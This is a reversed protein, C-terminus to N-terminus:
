EIRAICQATWPWPVFSFRFGFFFGNQRWCWFSKHHIHCSQKTCQDCRFLAMLNPKSRVWVRVIHFVANYVIKMFQKLKLEAWLNRQHLAVCSMATHVICPVMAYPFQKQRHENHSYRHIACRFSSFIHLYWIAVPISVDDLVYRFMTLPKQTRDSYVSINFISCIISYSCFLHIAICNRCDYITANVRTITVFVFWRIFNVLAMIKKKKCFYCWSLCFRNWIPGCQIIM